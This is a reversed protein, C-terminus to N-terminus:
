RTPRWATWFHYLHRFNPAICFKSWYHNLIWFATTLVFTQHQKYGFFSPPHNKFCGKKWKSYHHSSLFNDMNRVLDSLVKLFVLAFIWVFLKSVNAGHSSKGESDVSFYRSRTFRGFGGFPFNQLGLFTFLPFFQFRGPKQKLHGNDELAKWSNLNLWMRTQLM